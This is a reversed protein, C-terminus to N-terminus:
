QVSLLCFSAFQWTRVDFLENQLEEDNKQSQLMRKIDEALNMAEESAIPAGSKRLVASCEDMLWEYDLKTPTPLSSAQCQAGVNCQMHVSTAGCAELRQRGHISPM